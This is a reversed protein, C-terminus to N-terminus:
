NGGTGASGGGTAMVTWKLSVQALPGEFDVPAEMEFPLPGKDFAFETLEGPEKDSETVEIFLKYPGDAVLVEEFDLSEWKAVHPKVHDALTASTVVDPGLRATCAHDQFYVLGPKRLGAGLEITAVYAGAMTEIWVATCNRPAYRGDLSQTTYRVELTGRTPMVGEPPAPLSNCREGLGAGEVPIDTPDSAGLPSGPTYLGATPYASPEVKSGEAGCAAVSLLLPALWAARSASSPLAVLRASM